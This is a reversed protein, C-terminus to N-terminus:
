SLGPAFGHRLTSETSCRPEVFHRLYEPGGAQTGTGSLGFGGFPQRGVLAGTIERNLYLNGVRFQRRAAELHAPRRSYLGGTLAYKTANAWHLAEQFDRARLVALVPGFIEEQALPHEPPLGSFIHPALFPKGVAAELGAPVEGAWELRGERQGLGIYRRIKGAAESDILPGLDTQPERPDGLVLTRTSAILRRLFVEYVSEVVIVRSAASCKQGSYGFASQRVGVVAEDLDATEDVLIANKGGMECVVKKIHDQSDATQAAAALIDLGVERSGTFAILAVRPDRVLAAGIVSGRGPVLQLVNRPVGARWLAECLARAIRPTQESPKVLATNGTLLAATTMGACIALPFNWPSIIAAVGRPQHWLENWQGVFQGLRQPRFLAVASRAYYECFDIAECVDADAERWTKGAERIVLAALEDRRRRLEAAAGVIRSARAVPDLDRWAPFAKQTAAIAAQAQELTVEAVPPPWETREVAAAFHERVERQAFDRHPENVFPRGDGVGPVAPSLQHREAAQAIWDGAEETEDPPKAQHPSALLREEPEEEAFGARLWSQNSTNELLRRVLYAMGPVLEGVPVYERVRLGRSVLANKIADAMGFLMQFEVAASPLRQEELLALTYAISRLNHTGLALRVGPEGSRRPSAAIFRETMREFCADTQRKDTWVPVPWGQQEARIVEQDWYAGKILRVTVLRGVRRSWDILRQADEEGSRLYAQLALGAPFQYRECCRQFLALTLEKHWSQEMDFNLLTNFRRAAELIPRLSEFLREVTGEFDIPDVRPSLSTIKLSVNARPLPGVADMELHPDAAWRASADAVTDILELYRHRYTDAEEQSVCAEGLLDVSWAIGDEWRQQLLPLAAAADRGAIFRQALAEIRHHITAALLRKALAGAKLGLEFMAPLTVGPQSLYDVLCAHVEAPTRLIPFVDVFRFLQVKFGPDRLTAAILQESWFQSSLRGAQQGRVEALLQHGIERTRAERPFTPEPSPERPRPPPATKSAATKTSTFWPLPMRIQFSASTGREM